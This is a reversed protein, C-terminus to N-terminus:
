QRRFPVDDRVIGDKDVLVVLFTEFLLTTMHRVFLERGEKGRFIPKM